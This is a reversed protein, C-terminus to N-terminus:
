LSPDAHADFHDCHRDCYRSLFPRDVRGQGAYNLWCSVSWIVLQFASFGSTPCNLV